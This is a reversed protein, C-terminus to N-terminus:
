GSIPSQFLFVTPSIGNQQGLCLQHFNTSSRGSVLPTVMGARSEASVPDQAGESAQSAEEEGWGASSWCVHKQFDTDMFAWPAPASSEPSSGPTFSTMSNLLLPFHSKLIGETLSGAPYKNQGSDLGKAKQPHHTPGLLNQLSCRVPTRWVLPASCLLQTRTGRM